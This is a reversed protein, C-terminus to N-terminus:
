PLAAACTTNTITSLKMDCAIRAQTYAYYGPDAQPDAETLWKCQVSSTLAQQCEVWSILATLEGGDCARIAVECSYLGADPDVSGADGADPVCGNYKAAQAERFAIDQQCVDPTSSGCALLAVAL